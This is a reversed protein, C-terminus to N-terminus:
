NTSPGTRPRAWRVWWLAYLGAAFRLIPPVFWWAPVGRTWEYEFEPGLLKLRLILASGTALVAWLTLMRTGGIMRSHNFYAYPKLSGNLSLRGAAAVLDGDLVRARNKAKIRVQKRDIELDVVARHDIWAGYQNAGATFEDHHHVDQVPGAVMRFM